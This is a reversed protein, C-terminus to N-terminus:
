MAEFKVAKHKWIELLNKEDEPAISSSRIFTLSDFCDVDRIRYITKGKTYVYTPAEGLTKKRRVTVTAHKM